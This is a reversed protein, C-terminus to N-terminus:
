ARQQQLTRTRAEKADYGAVLTAYEDKHKARWDSYRRDIENADTTESLQGVLELVTAENVGNTSTSAEPAPPAEATPATEEVPEPQVDLIKADKPMRGDGAKAEEIGRGATPADILADRLEDVNHLLGGSQTEPYFWRVARGATRAYLMDRRNKATDGSAWSLGSARGEEVTYETRNLDDKHRGHEIVCKTHTHEVIKWILGPIAERVKAVQQHVELAPQGKILHIQKWARQPSMGMEHGYLAVLFAEEATKFKEPFLRATILAKAQSWIDAKQEASLATSARHVILGTETNM